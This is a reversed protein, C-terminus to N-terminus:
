RAEKRLVEVAELFKPYLANRRSTYVSARKYDGSKKAARAADDLKKYMEEIARAENLTMGDTNTM